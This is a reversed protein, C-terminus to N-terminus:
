PRIVMWGIAVLFVIVFEGTVVGVAFAVWTRLNPFPWLVLTWWPPHERNESRVRFPADRSDAVGAFPRDQSRSRLQSFRGGPLGRRSPKPARTTDSNTETM